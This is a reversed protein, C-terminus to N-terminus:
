ERHRGREGRLRAILYLVIALNAAVILLRTPRVHQILEYAELPLFSATAVVALYEAWHRRLLLGVGETLFVAAYVFTGLGIARLSRPDLALAAALPRDIWHSGPDLHLRAVLRTLTWASDHGALYLATAGATVLAV